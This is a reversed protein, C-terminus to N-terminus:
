RKKKSKSKKHKSPQKKDRIWMQFGDNKGYNGVFRYGAEQLSRTNECSYVVRYEALQNIILSQGSTRDTTSELVEKSEHIKAKLDKLDIELQCIWKRHVSEREKLANIESQMEKRKRNWFMQKVKTLFQKFRYKITIKELRIWSPSGSSDSCLVQAEVGTLRITGITPKVCSNEIWTNYKVFKNNEKLQKYAMEYTQCARARYTYWEPTLNAAYTM